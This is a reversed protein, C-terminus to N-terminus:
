ELSRVGQSEVRESRQGRRSDLGTRRTESWVRYKFKVFLEFSGCRSDMGSRSARCRLSRGSRGRAEGVDHSQGSDTGTDTEETQVGEGTGRHNGVGQFNGAVKRRRNRGREKQDECTLRDTRRGVCGTAM